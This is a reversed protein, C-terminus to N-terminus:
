GADTLGGTDLGSGAFVLIECAVALVGAAFPWSATSAGLVAAVTTTWHTAEGALIDLTREAHLGLEDLVLEATLEGAVTNGIILLLILGQQLVAMGEVAWSHGARNVASWIFKHSTTVLIATESFASAFTHIGLTRQGAGVAEFEVAEAAGGAFTAVFKFWATKATAAVGGTAGILVAHGESLHLHGGGATGVTLAPAGAGGAGLEAHVHLEPWVAIATELAAALVHFTGLLHLALVLAAWVAHDLSPVAAGRLGAFTSAGLEVARGAGSTQILVHHVAITTWGALALAGYIWWLVARRTWVSVLDILKTALLSAFASGATRM